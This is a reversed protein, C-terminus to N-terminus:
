GVRRVTMDTEALEPSPIGFGDTRMRVWRGSSQFATGRGKELGLPCVPVLAGVGGM